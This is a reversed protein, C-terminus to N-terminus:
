EAEKRFLDVTKFAIQIMMLVATVPVIAYVWGTPISTSPALYNMTVDVVKLGGHFLAYLFGGIALYGLAILYRRAVWPALKILSDFGMHAGRELALSAGLFTIWVFLFRSVEESWTLGFNFVYRAIVNAFVLLVMAVMLFAVFYELLQM